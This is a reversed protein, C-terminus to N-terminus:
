FNWRAQLAITRPKDLHKFYSGPSLPVDDGYHSTEEDNLNRAVLALEWGDALSELSIRADLKYYSDEHFMPDLDNAIYYSGSYVLDSAITLLYNDALTREWTLNWHASIDPAYQLDRGSLDNVCPQGAPTAATQPFTCQAGPYKDYTADLYSVALATRLSDSLAWNVDVEGGQSIAEAANGVLFGINGDFTSVQLDSYENRFVALNVTMAGNLLTSKSGIELSDVEEPEFFYTNINPSNTALDFGGSKYGQSAKAYLM